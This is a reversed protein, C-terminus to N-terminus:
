CRRAQREDAVAVGAEGPQAPAHAIRAGGFGVERRGGFGPAVRAEDGPLM